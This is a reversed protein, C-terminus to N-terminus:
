PGMVWSARGAVGHRRLGVGSNTPHIMTGRFPTATHRVSTVWQQPIITPAFYATPNHHTGSSRSRFLDFSKRSLGVTWCVDWPPDPARANRHFDGNRGPACM